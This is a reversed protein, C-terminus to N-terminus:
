TNSTRLHQANILPHSHSKVCLRTTRILNYAQQEIERPLHNIEDAKGATNVCGQFASDRIGKQNIPQESAHIYIERMRKYHAPSNHKTFYDALYRYGPGWFVNFQYQKVRDKVWYFHMDM